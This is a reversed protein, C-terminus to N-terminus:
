LLPNGQLSKSSSKRPVVIVWVKSTKLCLDWFPLNVTIKGESIEAKELVFGSGGGGQLGELEGLIEAIRNIKRHMEIELDSRREYAESL